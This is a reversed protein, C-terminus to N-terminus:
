NLTLNESKYHVYNHVRDSTYVYLWTKEFSKSRKGTVNVSTTGNQATSINNVPSCIYIGESSCNVNSITLNSSNVTSCVVNVFFSHFRDMWWLDLYWSCLTCTDHKSHRHKSSPFAPVVVFKLHKSYGFFDRSLDLWGLFYKGFKGVWFFGLISFKLGLFIRQADRDSSIWLDGSRRRGRRCPTSRTSLYRFVLFSIIQLGTSDLCM